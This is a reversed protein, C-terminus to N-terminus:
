KALFEAVADAAASAEALTEGINKPATVTGAYFIGETGSEASRLFLDRPELFGSSAQRLGASAALAANDDNARMGILLVLMDVSM